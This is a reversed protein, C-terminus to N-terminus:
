WLSRRLPAARSGSRGLGLRVISCTDITVDTSNQPDSKHQQLWADIVAEVRQCSVVDLGFIQPLARHLVAIGNRGGKRRAIASLLASLVSTQVEPLVVERSVRKIAQAALQLASLLEVAETEFHAIAQKLPGRGINWQAAEGSKMFIDPNIGTFTYGAGVLKSSIEVFHEPSIRGTQALFELLLQTWVSQVGYETAAVMRLAFDDSWLVNGPESALVISEAGHRGFVRILDERRKTELSALANVPVIRCHQRIAKETEALWEIRRNWLQEDIQTVALQGEYIGLYGSPRTERADDSLKQFARYAAQTVLVPASARGLQDLADTAALTTIGVVDIVIAKAVRLASASREREENTGLCARVFPTDQSALFLLAEPDTRGGARAVLHIPAPQARYIALVELTDAHGAVTAKEIASFDYEGPVGAKGVHVVQIDPLGAFRTQFDSITRQYRHVYKNQIAAIKATRPVIANAALDFMDGVCKGILAKAIPHDPAIEGLRIDPKIEDEIVVWHESQDAEEIYTVATGPEVSNPATLGVKPGIPHLALMMARHSEPDDFYLHLLRYAYSVAGLPNGALKLTIVAARGIYAPISSPDPIHVLDVLEPRQHRVGFYSLIVRAVGDDPKKSLYEQLVGITAEIDYKERVEVELQLLGSDYHGAKRLLECGALIDSHANLRTACRIFRTLSPEKPQTKIVSRWLELAEPFLGTGELVTAVYERSSLTATNEITAAARTAREKAEDNSGFALLVRAAAAQQVAKSFLEPRLRELLVDARQKDGKTSFCAIASELCALRFDEPHDDGSVALNGFLDGAEILDDGQARDRLIAALMYVLDPRRGETLLVRLLRIADDLRGYSRMLDAYERQVLADEPNISHAAEADRDAAQKHEKDTYLFRYLNAREVLAQSQLVFDQKREAREIAEQLLREAERFSEKEAENFFALDKRLGSPMQKRILIRALAVPPVPWEPDIRLAKRAREEALDFHSEEVYRQCLSILVQANESSAPLLQNELDEAPYTPPASVVWVADADTSSPFAKRYSDAASFAKERENLWYHALAENLRAREHTPDYRVADLIMLAGKKTHGKAVEITGLNAQVRFKQTPSLSDWRKSKLESLRWRAVDYDGRQIESRAEAIDRDFDSFPRDSLQQVEVAITQVTTSIEALAPSAYLEPYFVSAVHQYERLLQEIDEWHFLTVTFLGAATHLRNIEMVKQQAATSSVATTMLALEVLPSRFEKAKEVAEEILKPSIPKSPDYRKCQAARPRNPGELNIIDIGQQSEGRRGYLRLNACEWHAKLIEVCLREFDAENKPPPFSFTM